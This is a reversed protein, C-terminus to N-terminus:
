LCSLFKGIKASVIESASEYMFWINKRLFKATYEDHMSQEWLSSSSHCLELLLNCPSMCFQLFFVVGAQYIKSPSLIKQLLKGMLILCCRYLPDYFDTAWRGTHPM